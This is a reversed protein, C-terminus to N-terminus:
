IPLDCKDTKFHMPIAVKPRLSSVVRAAGDADVTYTGGVPVLLVEVPGGGVCHM